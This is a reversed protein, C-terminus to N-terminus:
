KNQKPPKGNPPESLIDNDLSGFGFYQQDLDLWENKIISFWNVALGQLVYEYPLWGYGNDGWALGWSNRVRFAGKTKTQDIPNTITYNDDYGVVVLAHSGIAREKSNPFPIDTDVKDKKKNNITHPPFILYPFTQENAFGWLNSRNAVLIDAKPFSLYVPLGFMSPFGAALFIKIQALVTKLLLNPSDLRLYVVTKYNQAYSYCFAPPEEDFNNIDYPWFEEPVVGFIVMARLTNRLSAGADGELHMLKRTIKYLFRRSAAVIRDESKKKEFYELLAVTAHASCSRLLGQDQIPSFYNRLDIKNNLRVLNNNKDLKESLQPNMPLILAQQEPDKDGESSIDTNTRELCPSTKQKDKIIGDISSDPIIKFQTTTDKPNSPTELEAKVFDICKNHKPFAETKLLAYYKQPTWETFAPRDPIWGMGFSNAM